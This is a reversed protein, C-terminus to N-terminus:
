QQAPRPAVSVKGPLPVNDPAAKKRSASVAATAGIITLTIGAVKVLPFAEGLLTASLLFTIGVGVFSLMGCAHGGLTNIAYGMLYTPIVTCFIALTAGIVNLELSRGPFSVGTTVVYHTIVATAGSIMAFSTFRRSGIRKMTKEGAVVFVAFALAAAAVLAAGLIPDSGPASLSIEERLMLLIGAYGIISGIIAKRTIARGLFTASLLLVFTPYLQQIMRELSPSIYRIAEFDLLSAAYYGLLGIGMSVAADRPALKGGKRMSDFILVAMYVPLAWLMRLALLAIPSIDHEYAAKILLVKSCFLTAGVVAALVGIM